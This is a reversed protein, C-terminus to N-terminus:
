DSLKGSAPFKFPWDPVRANLDASQLEVYTPSGDPAFITQKFPIWVGDVQRYDSLAVATGSTGYSEKLIHFSAKSCWYRAVDGNSLSVGQILYATEGAIKEEGVIELKKFAKKPHLWVLPDQSALPSGGLGERSPYQRIHSIVMGSLSPTEITLMDTFKRGLAFAQAFDAAEVGNRVYRIGHLTVGDAPMTATFHAVMHGVKAFAAPGGEADVMKAMLAEVSIPAQYPPLKILHIKAVGQELYLDTVKPDKENPVFSLRVKPLAPSEFAYTADAITKLDLTNPGQTLTWKGGKTAITLQIPPSKLEYTGALLPDADKFKVNKAVGEAAKMKATAPGVLEEFVVDRVRGPAPSGNQNSLIVVGIQKEPLMAVEATFGDINGGHDIQQTDGWKSVFWGFGYDEGGVVPTRPKRQELVAQKAFLQRGEFNGLGLQLRVWKSLDKVNSVISGAPAVADIPHLDLPRPAFGPRASDYGTAHDPQDPLFATRASTHSMGLPNFIRESLLDAYPKGYVKEDITGTLLLMLNQYLFTEGIRNTPVANSLIQILEDSKFDGSWWAFDTRPFGSRHSMIDTITLKDRQQAARPVFSPVYKTPSDTLKLLGEEAAETTLLCTFAKTSSGIAYVTDATAPLNQATDRLGFGRSFAVKDGCVIAVSLGPVLFQRRIAEIKKELSKAQAATLEVPLTPNPIQAGSSAPNLLVLTPILLLM